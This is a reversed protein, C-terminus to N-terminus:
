DVTLPLMLTHQLSTSGSTYTATVTLTYNGAPTGPNHTGGGGGGGCAVWTLIILLLAATACVEAKSTQPKAQFTRRGSLDPRALRASRVILWLLMLGLVLLPSGQPRGNSPLGPPGPRPGRLAGSRATTTVTVSASSIASPSLTVSAPSITCSGAPPAGSCTLALTYDFNGEPSIKLTYNQTGGALITTGGTVYSLTFDAGVGSLSVAQPSGPANDTISLAATWSGAVTPKFTVNITCSTGANLSNPCNNTQAFDSANPGTIAISTITLAQTGSNTVTVNLSASTAGVPWSNFILANSSLSVTPAPTTGQGTLSVTQPSGEANDTISLTGTRTGSATPTFTVGVLCGTNPAVSSQCNNTQAFDGTIAIGSINLTTTAINTLSVTQLASTTGVLQAGFTLNSASLSVASAIGAGMLSVTQPSSTASDTITIVGTRNGTATPTFTVSITCSSGGAVSAGCTNTQAFDGSVAISAITLTAGDTSTLTVTQPASTAGVVQNEFTLSATSLVVYPGPTGTGTLSATQPSLPSSNFITVTGTRTGVATPSFVVSISCRGGIGIGGGCTNTEAFDGTTYLNEIYLPLNAANAVTMTQAASSTGVAQNGFTLGTPSLSLAPGLGMGALSIMQPSGLANDTIALSGSRNGPATPTFTVSITCSASSALSAGCTNTQAFDGSTVISGISVTQSGNNTLTVSQAASTAATNIPGFSLSGPSFSVTLAGTVGTGSLPVMQPSGPANDTIALAGTRSGTATPSFTTSITCSTGATLATGICSNTEGFDGTANISSITLPTSGVNELTVTQTPSTSTVNQNPFTLSPPSLAVGPVDAPGIKAVFANGAPNDPCGALTAQVANLVPFACSTTEGAVYVNGSSDLAIGTGSTPLPFDYYLLPSGSPDFREVSGGSETVVPLNTDVGNMVLPGVAYANGASDITIAKGGPSASYLLGSGTANLKAVIGNSPSGTTGLSVYANGSSDVAIGTGCSDFNCGILTCGPGPGNLVLLTSYVLISGTPDFKTVFARAGNGCGTDEEYAGPTTEFVCYATTGTVYADGASDVAVSTGQTGFAGLFTSYVLGSGSPDIKTVFAAPGVTVTRHAGPTTPFDSDSSTIGTVYASGFFDVAIGLGYDDGGGGLYTSYGLASGTPNLEAIFADYCPYTFPSEGCTGGHYTPELAGSTVPLDPSNTQGTVYANGSSDVAIATASQVGGTGGFYTSYVLVSGAANIKTVFVDCQVGPGCGLGTSATQVVGTTTPFDPSSTGGAVYVSGSSDVAIANAQDNVSGGLYTSYVLVPDIILPRSRDYAPIEFHVRKDATLVYRADVLQRNGVSSQRNDTGAKLQKSDVTSEEQYVVPKRLRVEGGITQVVLDGDAAIRVPSGKSPSLAPEQPRARAPVLGAGVALAIAKPNAGPSVVFDYELRGQGGYYILDIGPYISEYKVKGYTPVNTRWKAPDNGIFYNSKGPLEDLGAVKAAHNAGVLELRLIDATRNGRDKTERLLGRAAAPLPNENQSGVGPNQSRLSLVAEGDTLFLTYGPGRSLFKVQDASQGENVEFSLPLKGYTQIARAQSVTKNPEGAAGIAITGQAIAPPANAVIFGCLGLLLTPLRRQSRQRKTSNM